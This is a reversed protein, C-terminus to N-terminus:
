QNLTKAFEMAIQMDDFPYKVGHIEQYTEHGKGAILIIDGKAALKFATKIAEKRDAIKLYKNFHQPQVGAEMDRLIEDPDETRPNDSTLIAQDAQSTVVRAMEPRKNKDRDGGCGALVFLKENRTRINQITSIVNELADPTHAYDVIVIVGNASTFTEFRGEVNKLESLATLIEDEKWGLLNAVGYVLLLNSANFTGVLTTWFEKDNFQLLMGHFQNELVKGKFDANTKLAYSHKNAATNQLMVWGNKDDINTLAFAEQDLDDFFKKKAEIYNKFTIHYDLHDHTINTFGAGAFHLGAIRKQHIGHSSVEMFAYGIGQSVAEALIRNIELIDPTTHTSVIEEQHIKINITSILAAPYGLKESLEYLLTATTTKGNTGTIGVLKLKESPNDYFNSALRGLTEATDSVKIYSVTDDIETPFENCVIQKAGQAIAKSIFNHGDVAVGAIAVFVDGPEVKRSDFRIANVEQDTTGIVDLIPTKYLLDKLKM